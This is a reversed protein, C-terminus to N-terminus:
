FRAVLNLQAIHHDRDRGRVVVWQNMYAPEVTITKTLPVSLGAANRWRDLGSRQGWGTDNLAIFPESAVFVRVKGSLPATARLQPRLRWGTGSRGEVWREELRARGTVTFGKGDGVARFSIQQWFRHEDTQVPGVPDTFVYAYGLSVTTTSDLKYGISPRLLVQGTRSANDSLRLHGEMTAAFRKGLDVTANVSSWSQFDQDAALAPVAPSWILAALSLTRIM